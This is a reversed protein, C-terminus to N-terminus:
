WGLAKGSPWVPECPYALDAASKVAQRAANTTSGPTNALVTTEQGCTNSAVGRRGGVGGRARVDDGAGKRSDDLLQQM